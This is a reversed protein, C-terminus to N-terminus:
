KEKVAIWVEALGDKGYYQMDPAASKMKGTIYGKNLPKYKSRPLWKMIAQVETKAITDITCTFIAWMNTPVVYESLEETVIQDSSSAILYEFDKPNQTQNYISIGFIGHPKQNNIALLKEAGKNEGLSNWFAPIASRAEGKSNTTNIKYGVVRFSDIAEIRFSQEM